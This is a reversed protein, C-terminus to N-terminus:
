NITLNKSEPYIEQISTNEFHVGVSYLLYFFPDINYPYSLTELYIITKDKLKKHSWWRYGRQKMADVWSGFSWLQDNILLEDQSTNKTKSVFWDPLQKEWLADNENEIKEVEIEIIAKMVDLLKSLSNEPIGPKITIALGTDPLYNRHEQLLRELENM